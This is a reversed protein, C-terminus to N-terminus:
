DFKSSTTGGEGSKTYKLLNYKGTRVRNIFNSLTKDRKSGHKSITQECKMGTQNSRLYQKNQQWHEPSVQHLLKSCVLEHKQQSGRGLNHM